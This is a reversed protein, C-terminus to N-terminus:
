TTYNYWSWCCAGKWSRTFLVWWSPKTIRTYGRVGDISCWTSFGIWGLNKAFKPSHRGRNSCLIGRIYELRLSWSRRHEHQIHLDWKFWRTNVGSFSTLKHRFCRIPRTPPELKWRWLLETWTSNNLYVQMRFWWSGWVRDCHLFLKYNPYWESWDRLYLRKSSESGVTYQM